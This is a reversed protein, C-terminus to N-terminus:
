PTRRQSRTCIGRSRISGSASIAAYTEVEKKASEVELLYGDVYAEFVLQTDFLMVKHLALKHADAASGPFAAELERDLLYQLSSLGSIHLKPSVGLRKHVKGIRLRNNVYSDDYNARFISSVYSRMTNKLRKLTDIDGIVSAVESDDLQTDYFEQVIGHLMTEIHPLAALMLQKDDDNFDLHHLRRALERETMGMQEILSREALRVMANVAVEDM